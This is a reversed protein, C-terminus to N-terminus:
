QKGAQCFWFKFTYKYMNPFNARPPATQYSTPSMVWLDATRIRGGSGYVPCPSPLFESDKKLLKKIEGPM